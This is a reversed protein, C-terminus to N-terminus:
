RCFSSAQLGPVPPDPVQDGRPTVSGAAPPGTPLAAVVSPEQCHRHVTAERPWSEQRPEQILLGTPQRARSPPPPPPEPSCGQPEGLGRHSCSRPRHGPQKDPPQGAGPPRPASGTSRLGRVNGGGRRGVEVHVALAHGRSQLVWSAGPGRIIWSAREGTIAAM